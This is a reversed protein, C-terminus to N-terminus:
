ARRRFLMLLPVAALVLGARGLDRWVLAAYASAGLRAGAESGAAAVIPGPDLVDALAGGGAAALQAAAARDPEPAAPPRAPAPV